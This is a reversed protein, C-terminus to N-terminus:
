FGLMKKIEDFKEEVLITIYKDKLKNNENFQLQNLEILCRHNLQKITFINEINIIINPVSTKSDNIVLETLLIFNEKKM